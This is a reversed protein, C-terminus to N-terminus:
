HFCNFYRYEGKVALHTPRRWGRDSQTLSPLRSHSCDTAGHCVHQISTSNPHLIQQKACREYTYVTEPGKDCKTSHDRDTKIILGCRVCTTRLQPRNNQKKAQTHRNTLVTLGVFVASGISAGNPNHVRTPWQAWPVTHTPTRIGAGASPAIRQPILQGM